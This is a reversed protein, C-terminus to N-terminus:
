VDKSIIKRLYAINYFCDRLQDNSLISTEIDLMVTKQLEFGGGYLKGAIGNTIPNGTDLSVISNKSKYARFEWLSTVGLLHIKFGRKTFVEVVDERNLSLERLSDKDRNGLIDYPIAVISFDMEELKDAFYSIDNM